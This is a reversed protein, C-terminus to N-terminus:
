ICSCRIKCRSILGSFIPNSITRQCNHPQTRAQYIRFLIALSGRTKWRHRGQRVGQSVTRNKKSQEQQSTKNPLTTIQFNKIQTQSAIQVLQRIRRIMSAIVLERGHSSGQAVHRGFHGQSAGVILTTVHIGKGKDKPFHEGHHTGILFKMAFLGKDIADHISPRSRGDSSSPRIPALFNELTSPSRASRFSPTHFSDHRNQSFLQYIKRFLIFFHLVAAVVVLSEVGAM